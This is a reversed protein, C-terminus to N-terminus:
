RPYLQKLKKSIENCREKNGLGGMTHTEIYYLEDSIQEVSYCNMVMNLFRPVYSQYEDRPAIDNVGLPDWENCLIKGIEFRVHRRSTLEEIDYPEHDIEFETKYVGWDMFVYYKTMADYHSNAYFTHIIKSDPKLHTRSEEGLEDSFCLMTLGESDKWIDHKITAM